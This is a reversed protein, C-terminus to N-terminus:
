SALYQRAWAKEEASASPDDLVTKLREREALDWAEADREAQRAEAQRRRQEDRYQRLTEGAFCKPVYV